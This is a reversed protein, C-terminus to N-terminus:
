PGREALQRVFGLKEAKPLAKVQRELRLAEGQDACVARAALRVPRRARTCKAGGPLEGNHQRVRREVDTSVGCYLSGDACLLLYIYWNREAM